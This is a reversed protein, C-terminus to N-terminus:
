TRNANDVREGAYGDPPTYVAQLLGVMALSGARM